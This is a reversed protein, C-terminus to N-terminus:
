RELPGLKLMCRSKPDMLAMKREDGVAAQRAYDWKRVEPANQTPKSYDLECAEREISVGKRSRLIDASTAAAGAIGTSFASSTFADASSTVSSGAGASDVELPLM